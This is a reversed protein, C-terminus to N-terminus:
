RQSTGFWSRLKEQLLFFGTQRELHFHLFAVSDNRFGSEILRNTNNNIVGQELKAIFFQATQRDDLSVGSPQRWQYIVDKTNYGYSGIWLPCIQSDLPFKLLHMRCRAHITLRQSYSVKGDPAIRLFKNPVTIKHMKSKKGNVFFTDPKWIKNLFQWNMPLESIGGTKNFVLRQDYWSQRFYCDVYYDQKKESM